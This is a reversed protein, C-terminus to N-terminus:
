LVQVAVLLMVASAFASKCTRHPGVSRGRAGGGARDHNSGVADCNTRGRAELTGPEPVSSLCVRMETHVNGFFFFFL